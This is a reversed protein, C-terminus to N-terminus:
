QTHCFNFICFFFFFFNYHCPLKHTGSELSLPRPDMEQFGRFSNQAQLSITLDDTDLLLFTYM